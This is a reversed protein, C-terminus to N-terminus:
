YRRNVQSALLSMDYLLIGLFDDRLSFPVSFSPFDLWSGFFSFSGIFSFLLSMVVSVVGEVSSCSFGLLISESLPYSSTSFVSCRFISLFFSLSALAALVPLLLAIRDPAVFAFPNSFSGVVVSSAIPISSALMREM